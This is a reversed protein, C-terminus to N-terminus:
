RRRRAASVTAVSSAIHFNGNVDLRTRADPKYKRPADDVGNESVNGSLNRGQVGFNNGVITQAAGVVEVGHRGNGYIANSVSSAKRATGIQQTGGEVRIGSYVSNGINSNTVINNGGSLVMGTLNYQVTNRVPSSFRIGKAVADATMAKSLTVKSGNIAVITTGSPIGSGSVIQGLHLSRPSITAPLTFIKQNRFTRISSKTDVVPNIGVSSFGTTLEIGTVNGQNAAGLTTGVISLGTAGLETRIGAQTSGVITSGAVTGGAQSGSALVGFKNALRDGTENRGLVVNSVLIGGVGNIKVAAGKAFGGINLSAVAGGAAEGDPESGNVFEIGNIEAATGVPQGTRTTTIRSGDITISATTPGSVGALRFRNAGNIAFAKSIAPLEQSLRIAGAAGGNLGPLVNSFAFDVKPNKNLLSSSSDLVQRLSIMKGLSGAAENSGATSSVVLTMSDNLDETGINTTPQGFALQTVTLPDIGLSQYSLAFAQGTVTARYSGETTIVYGMELPLGTDLSAARALSWTGGVGGVGVVEYVGNASSVPLPSAGTGAPLSDITGLRVLVRDGVSLLVGDILPLAGAGSIEGTADDYSGALTATTAVKVAEAGARNSVTSVALPAVGYTQEYGIEYVSNANTGEAVRVFSGAALEPSTDADSSRTMVWKRGPSGSVTVTYVGNENANAQNAVLVRDGVRLAIGDVVLPMMRGTLTSAVQGPTGYVYIAALDDATAVRVPIASGGGIPADVVVVAGALSRISVDGGAQMSSAKGSAILAANGLTLTKSTETVIDISGRPASAELSVVDYLTAKLAVTNPSLSNGTGPDAGGARLTVMGPTRLSSITIDNLEDVTFDGASRGELTVVDTRLNASGEAEVNIGNAVVRSPGSITGSQGGKNRQVLRVNNVATIAGTLNLDGASSTLTIDDRTSDVLADLVRVSNSVKLGDAAIAIKGRAASLPATVNFNGGATITLDGWTALASTFGINGGASLSIGRGSAAVADFTIDNQESITLDYPFPGSIPDGKRTAATIRMSDIRTRLDVTNSAVSQQETTKLDNGLTVAVTKGQILGTNIGTRPSTTSFVFPALPEADNPSRFLYSQRDVNITGEVYVDSTDAQVYISGASAGGSATLSGSSSVFMRGRNVASTNPDDAIRIDYGPATVQANFNVLEALAGPLTQLRTSGAPELARPRPINVTPLSTYGSGPNTIVFRDIVGNTSFAQATADKGGGGVIQVDIPRTDDYGQGGWGGTTAIGAVTRNGAVIAVARAEYERVGRDVRSEGLDLFKAASVQANLNINTARLSLDSAGAAQVLQSNVDIQSGPTLLDVFLGKTFTQGPAFTFSSAKADQNYVAYRTDLSVVGPDFLELSDAASGGGTTGGGTVAQGLVFELRIVGSDYDVDGTVNVVQATAQTGAQTVVQTGPLTVIGTTSAPGTASATGVGNGFLLSNKQNPIPFLSNMRFRLEQGLVFLTGTLTGPVMGGPNAQTVPLRFTQSPAGGLPPNSEDFATGATAGGTTGGTTGGVGGTTVVLWPYTVAPVSPRGIGLSPVALPAASWTIRLTDGSNGAAGPVVQGSLPRILNPSGAPTPLDFSVAQGAGGNTFSWTSGGYAVTGSITKLEPTDGNGSYPNSLLFDTVLGGGQPTATVGNASVETGNTAYFTNFVDVGGYLGGDIRAAGLTQANNFSPNDAIYLDEPVTAVQQVYVSDAKDSTIVCWPAFSFDANPRFVDIAMALRQELQETQVGTALRKPARGKVHATRERRTEIPRLSVPLRSAGDGGRVSLVKLMRKLTSM